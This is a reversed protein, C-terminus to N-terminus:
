FLNEFLAQFKKERKELTPVLLTWTKKKMKSSTGYHRYLINYHHEL